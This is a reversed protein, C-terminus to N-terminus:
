ATVPRGEGRAPCSTRVPCRDCIDNLQADFGASAMGQAVEDVLEVAWGGDPPLAPQDQPRYTKTPTGLQVLAAGAAPEGPAVDAFAGGQVAVQYAGLQPNTPLDAAKPASKGTKLDVVRLGDATRELRDVRGVLRVPGGPLELRVDVPLEAGVLERGRADVLYGALKRVVQEARRRGIDGVWGPRLGLVHWRAHLAEVLEAETAEPLEAALDHVLNGLAQSGSSPGSGGAQTLLWRLPCRDFEEVKSPSVRVPEGTALPHDDSLPALGYWDQPAAGPVGALALRALRRAAESAEDPPTRPDTLHQRLAAVVGALSMPPGPTTVARVGDDDWRATTTFGDPARGDAAAPPPDVLDLFTSPQQEDDRVATVLLSESARSVAVHFLRTEDDRVAAAAARRSGDRGTLVDVLHEAGLLSGRPRLDPWTGEQVGAVVVVRWQQGAAAAATLLAVADGAGREALTDAPVDQGRLYELFQGPGAQPLRDMFRAAADFLAVVADLDRDARRGAPGGGLAVRQWREALGTVSWVAWLVTESTAAEAACAETAARLVAAVRRAPASTFRDVLALRAPDRLAQVLLDDSYPVPAADPDPTGGPDPETPADAARLARRLRRLGMADAGGIPSLLLAQAREADLAESELGALGVAFADLLPVVAPQDRVPLETLPVEVPVGAHSLGRRLDGARSRGRVLVAMQSWPVGHLLHKRRLADAVLAVEHQATRVVHVVVEDPGVVADPQQVHRQRAGGAAGIREAVRATVARLESGQRWSTRLVISEAAGADDGSGLLLGLDAGRFSQAVSDPDGTLLLGPRGGVVVRLLDAVAATAEHADDMAVLQVQERVQALLRDDSLLAAVAESAIAAPDYGGPTALATVDLYEHLARAGAVWEPRGHEVGLAALEDPPVGREVARMLLDRLEGRFGRTGLAPALEAPWGPDGGQGQRHGALLERLIVDQEPGTILRPAPEGQAAAALRLVGFAFSAPTRGLPEQVTAALRASVQERLRSAALRTPALVLVRGPDLGQAVRAVVAEVLVTTKGTGPAGLVRLPRGRHQVAALQEADLSVARGTAVRARQLRLQPASDTRPLPNM